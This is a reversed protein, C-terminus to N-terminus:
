FGDLTLTPSSQCTKKVIKVKQFLSQKVLPNDLCGSASRVAPGHTSNMKICSSYFAPLLVHKGELFYGTFGVIAPSSWDFRTGLWTTVVQQTLSEQRKSPIRPTKRPDFFVQPGPKALAMSAFAQPEAVSSGDGEADTSARLYKSFM